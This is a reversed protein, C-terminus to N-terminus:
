RVIDVLLGARDPTTIKLTSCSGNSSEAVEITTQVVRRVGGLVRPEADSNGSRAKIGFAESTEQVRSRHVICAHM